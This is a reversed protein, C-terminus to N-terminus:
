AAGAMLLGIKDRTADARDLVGMVRGGCVVLIRDGLALVEDLETSVILVAAGEDRKAVMQAHIYQISGVDLGRTPQAAMLLRDAHGFERAIIVKQQNGGSLTSAPVDVSPTRIDFEKVLREADRRIAERDMRLGKAYPAKRYRNLVLNDAVPFSGILGDRQRDEPVHAVGRDYLDRPSLGTVDVGDLLVQGAEVVRLGAIAEVLETQGNGQVGAVALIEGARVDLDIGDVAVHGRSDLVTLGRVQLVPEGPEAPTKDVVLKVDHGVMLAALEAETADPTATGVVEGRRLVVIRDSIAKVESLKHSIFIISRGDAKLTEIIRFLDKTEGPTLVATPEDLILLDASRYLAKLIEVRQQAGVSLEEVIADPDVHLGYDDALEVLRRRAADRDLVGLPGTPEVGLMINEVVTFVPVLMFHQHVMGIGAAIADAPSSFRVPAGDILIEGEDPEYLGYLVNMLTSKGAGNEGLLALVEGGDVTLDVDKNAVVGPFRKTIGRLEVKM